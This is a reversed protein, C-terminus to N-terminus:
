CIHSVQYVNGLELKTHTIKSFTALGSCYLEELVMLFYDLLLNKTHFLILHEHLTLILLPSVRNTRYLWRGTM